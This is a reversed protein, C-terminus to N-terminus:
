RDGGYPSVANHTDATPIFIDGAGRLSSSPLQIIQKPKNFLACVTVKQHHDILIHLATQLSLMQFILLLYSLFLFPWAQKPFADTYSRKM